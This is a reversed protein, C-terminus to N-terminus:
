AHSNGLYAARVDANRSVTAYSGEAIIRGRALVTITDALREIVKLNHEVIVITRKPALSKILSAVQEVDEQGMGALPEDLLLLEPDLALTTAIELARKRGYPLRAAREHAFRELGVQALLERAPEDFRELARPSRWFAFADTSQRLLAVRVNQLASLKPFVSSIQFSRVMGLQAVDSAGASTIDQGKWHIQGSSPPLFKTLLNFFTTKGAANPGILAHIQGPRVQFNVDDVAAVGAFTRRLATTQLLINSM